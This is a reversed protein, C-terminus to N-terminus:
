WQFQAAPVHVAFQVTGRLLRPPFLAFACAAVVLVVGTALVVRRTSPPLRRSPGSAGTAATAKASSWKWM